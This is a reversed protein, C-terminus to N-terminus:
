LSAGEYVRLTFSQRPAHLRIAGKETAKEIVVEKYDLRVLEGVDKYKSATDTPWLQVKQGKKLGLKKVLEDNEDVQGESEDYASTTILDVAQAGTVTEPKPSAGMTTDMTKRFRELWAFAKPYQAASIQDAPFGGAGSFIWHLPWLEMDALTPVKTNLLWDRGDALLTTELLEVINRIEAIAQPRALALSEPTFVLVGELLDARDKLFAPDKMIPSNAGIMRVANKALGGELSVSQLLRALAAMEPGFDSMPGFKQELKELCLRTDLYVDRGISVIPIRRYKVGLLAVDPRPM